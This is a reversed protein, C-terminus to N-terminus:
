ADIEQRGPQVTGTSHVYYHPRTIHRPCRDKSAALQTLFVCGATTLANLKRRVVPLRLSCKLLM